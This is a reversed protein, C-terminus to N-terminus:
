PCDQRRCDDDGKCSGGGDNNKTDEHESDSSLIAKAEASTPDPQNLEAEIQEQLQATGKIFLKSSVLKAPNGDDAM